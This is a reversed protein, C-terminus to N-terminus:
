TYSICGYTKSLIHIESSAYEFYPIIFIPQFNNIYYFTLLRIKFAHLNKSLFTYFYSPDLIRSFYYFSGTPKSKYACELVNNSSTLSIQASIEYACLLKRFVRACGQCIIINKLCYFHHNFMLRYIEFYIPRCWSM